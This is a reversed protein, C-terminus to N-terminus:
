REEVDRFIIACTESPLVTVSGSTGDGAVSTTQVPGTSNNNWCKASKWLRGDTSSAPRCTGPGAFSLIDSSEDNGSCGYDDWFTCVGSSAGPETATNDMQFWMNVTGIGLSNGPISLNFCQARATATTSGVGGVLPSLTWWAAVEGNYATCQTNSFFNIQAAKDPTWNAFSVQAFLVLAALIGFFASSPTCM